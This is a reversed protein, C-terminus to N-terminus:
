GLSELVSRMTWFDWGEPLKARDEETAVIGRRHEPWALVAVGEYGAFHHFLDPASLRRELQECLPHWALPLQRRVWSWSRPEEPEASPLREALATCRAQSADLASTDALTLVGMAQQQACLVCADLSLGLVLGREVPVFWDQGPPVQWSCFGCTGSDAADPAIRRLPQVPKGPGWFTTESAPFYEDAYQNVHWHFSLAGAVRSRDRPGLSRFGRHNVKALCYECAHPATDLGPAALADRATGIWVVQAPDELAGCCSTLHIRQFFERRVQVDEVVVVDVAYVMVPNGRYLWGHRTPQLDGLTVEMGQILAQEISDAPTDPAAGTEIADADDVTEQEAVSDAQAERSTGMGSVVQTLAELHRIWRGM